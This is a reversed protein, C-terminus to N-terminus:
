DTKHIVHRGPIITIDEKAANLYKIAASFAVSPIIFDKYRMVLPIRRAVGDQDPNDNVYGSGFSVSSFVPVPMVLHEFEMFGARNYDSVKGISIRELLEMNVHDIKKDYGKTAKDMELFGYFPFFVRGMLGSHGSLLADDGPFDESPETFLIDLVVSHVSFFDMIDIFDSIYKRRWPWRGMAQPSVSDDGIAIIYIKDSAPRSGRLIFRWDLSKLELDRGINLASLLVVVLPVAVSIAILPRNKKTLISM